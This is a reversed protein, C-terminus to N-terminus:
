RPPVADRPEILVCSWVRLILNRPARGTSPLFPRRESTESSLARVVRISAVAVVKKKKQTHPPHPPDIDCAQVIAPVVRTARKAVSLDRYVVTVVNM